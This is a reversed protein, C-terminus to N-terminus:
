GKLYLYLGILAAGLVFWMSKSPDPEPPEPEPPECLEFEHEAGFGFSFMGGTFDHVMYGIATVEYVTGTLPTTPYINCIVDGVAFKRPEPEPRGTVTVRELADIEARYEEAVSMYIEYSMTFTCWSTFLDDFTGTTSGHWDPGYASRWGVSASISTIEYEVM